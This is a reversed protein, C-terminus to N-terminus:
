QLRALEKKDWPKPILPQDGFKFQEPSFYKGLEQGAHCRLLSPPTPTSSTTSSHSASVLFGLCHPACVFLTFSNRLWKWWCRVGSYLRWIEIHHHQVRWCPVRQVSVYNLPVLLDLSPVKDSRRVAACQLLKNILLASNRVSYLVDTIVCAPLRYIGTEPM